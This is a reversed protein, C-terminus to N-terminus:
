AKELNEIEIKKMQLMANMVRKAKESDKDQLLKPLITPIIQWSIGFKDKLWGCQQAQEDGGESLKEWYYDVEEQSECNVVFSVAENFYFKHEQASDMAIFKQNELEFPAYAITGEKDPEQNPGYRFIEGVKSNKFVSTYLNIAEEAKGASKGVFLLSPIIKQETNQQTLIIQWSVGFRDELWGYKESFPYKDLPMLIKGGVALKDWLGQVEDETGCNVFFSISPNLKFQPGGNIATFNYDEIQFAVTMISGEPKGSVKAGAEDYRVASKIKSNKFLSTYFNTAEEAQNNFWLFPNIKQM